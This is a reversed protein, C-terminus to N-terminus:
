VAALWIHFHDMAHMLIVTLISTAAVAMYNMKPM